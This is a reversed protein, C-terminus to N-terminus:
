QINMKFFILINQYDDIKDYTIQKKDIRNHKFWSLDRM